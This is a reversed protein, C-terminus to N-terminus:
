QDENFFIATYQPLQLRYYAMTRYSDQLVKKQEPNIFAVGDVAKNQLALVASASDAYFKYTIKELYPKTGFYKEYPVISYSILSGSSDKTLESFQWSGSGIPRTNYESLTVNQLSSNYAMAWIHQPLIGFTLGSLFPAFPEKLTLTITYDDVLAAQVGRLSPELPSQYAPDQIAQITFLVDNATLPQGDHWTADRRIFFTYILQNDSVTYDSVLDKELKQDKNRVFLSSFLLRTLDLDVDNNQALVPNVYQPQGVLAETYEGGSVPVVTTLSLYRYIGMFGLSVVIVLGCGGVLLRERLSLLDGLYRMRKWWQGRQANGGGVIVRDVM